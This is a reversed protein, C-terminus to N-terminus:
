HTKEIEEIFEKIALSTYHNGIDNMHTDCRKWLLTGNKAFLDKSIPALQEELNLFPIDNEIAAKELIKLSARKSVTNQHLTENLLWEYIQPKTPFIVIAFVCGKEQAASKLALLWQCIKLYQPTNYSIKKYLGNIDPVYFLEKNGNIPIVKVFSSTGANNKTLFFELLKRSPFKFNDIPNIPTEKESMGVELEEICNGNFRLQHDREVIDGYLIISKKHGNLKEYNGIIRGFTLVPFPQTLFFPISSLLDIKLGHKLRLMEVWGTGTVSSGFVIVDHPGRKSFENITKAHTGIFKQQDTPPKPAYQSFNRCFPDSDLMILDNEKFKSFTHLLGFCFLEILFISLVTLITAKPFKKSNFIFLNEAM